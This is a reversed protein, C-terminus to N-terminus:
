FVMYEAHKGPIISFIVGCPYRYIKVLGALAAEVQVRQQEPNHTFAIVNDTQVGRWNAYM